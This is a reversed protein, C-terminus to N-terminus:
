SYAYQSQEKRRSWSSRGFNGYLLRGNKGQSEDASHGGYPRYAKVEKDMVRAMADLMDDHIAYPFVSYEQDLFDKVLDRDKYPMERPLFFQGDEFVPQLKKIRDEKALKGGIEEITFYLGEEDMMHEFHEIDSVMGYQEYWFQVIRKGKRQWKQYVDRIAVWRQTLSLRERIMDVLFYNDASDLGIIAIVTYDSGSNKVKKSNAPDVFGYLRIPAPLEKYYRVWEPKFVQNEDAVPNLLMQCSFVYSGMRRLKAELQAQTLLVPRGTKTGDDTCYRKRVKWTGTAAQTQYLDNFHYPTGVIRKYDYSMDGLNLSLEFRKALKEIQDSTSVSEETVLDDYNLDTYHM